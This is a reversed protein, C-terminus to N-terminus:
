PDEVLTIAGEPCTSAGLRAKAELGAPVEEAIVVGYGDEDADFVESAV